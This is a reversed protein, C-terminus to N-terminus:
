QTVVMTITQTESIGSSQGTGVIKFTYSGPATGNTSLGSCGSAGLTLAIAFAGLMCRLISGEKRRLLLGALFGLPLCCLLTGHPYALSASTGPGAGLPNGTDVVVSATAVGNASLKVQSPTFTCTGSSPLGLCGLAIIDTFGQVSALNITITTHQHTAVSISPPSAVLSFPTTASAAIATAASQSAAYNVDGAYSATVLLTSQTTAATLTAVGNSAITAQGLTVGGSTFSVTGGPSISGQGEVVAVLNFQQLGIASGAVTTTTPRLQITESYGASASAFNAGDGGYSAGISHSGVSMAPVSLTAHGTADLNAVGIATGADTFQITGTAPAAGANTITATFSLPNLTTGPNSNSNLSLATTQKVALVLPASVSPSAKGDGAYSAVFTHVGPSLTSLTLVAIGSANLPATASTTGDTFSVMGTAVGGNSTIRATFTVPQGFTALQASETISLQTNADTVAEMLQATADAYSQDGSYSTTITHSGVSLASTTLSGTGSSDLTAAALLTGNDRFTVTGTPVVKGAGNIQAAFTVNQGSAAPNHNSTLTASTSTVVLETTPTSSSGAHDTDGGYVATLTHTGLGLGAPSFGAAGNPGPASSGLLTPGDYFRVTGGPNPSDSTITATLTLANGLTLPNASAVLLTSSNAQRVVVTVSASTASSNNADGGYSATLTHTGISLGATSFTASGAAAITGITTSNDLLMLMGAPSVGPSTLSATFSTMTGVDVLNAAVSLTLTPQALQVVFQEAASTSATYNNNGLYAVTMSHTGQSLSSTSFSASGTVSLTVVGLITSGDRISAQGPPVGNASTVSVNFTAPKGALGTSSASSVTTQTASQQVTQSIAGSTSPADNSDGSYTATVSHNGAALTSVTLSGTGSVVPASGLLNAGDKFLVSGTIPSGNTNTVMSTFNIPAGAPTNNGSSFLSTVTNEQSIQETVTNSTSGTNANDGGYQASLNHTGSSFDQMSWQAVGSSNFAVTALATVGDYLVVSGTATGSAVLATVTLTVNAAFVAPNPLVTLVLSSLQKVNEIYVPSTSAASNADGSYSVTIPHSGPTLTTISFSASGLSNLPSAVLLSGNDRFSATGTPVVGGAATIQAVFTVNQGNAAPNNNSTVVASTGQVVSETVPSSTSGAHNTDGSYVATLTHPGLGLGTPSFSASGNTGLSATGLVTTGNLFHVAGGANLTASTVAAALTLPNGQTLPNASATLLTTSTAQQVVVTVIASLVSSNNADGSYSATLTHTGISLTTSFPLSGTGSVAMTAIAAGGDLLLLTGTPAAGPSALVASFNATNGADVPNSPGSLTLTPQAPQVVYQDAASISGTYNSSGPYSATISHTGIGLTSTSFVASGTGSLPATGLVTSSDLFTAIGAPIGTTSTVLATFTAPKGALSSSAASLTTQTSTQQVTQTVVPSNSAAYNTNGGYGATLSHSGVSLTSYALVAQGSVNIAVTGLVTTGDYFLVNGTPVGDLTAGAALTVNATLHLTAGANIPNVDTNLITVTGIQAITETTSTSSSAANDTDGSYSATISHSGPALSSTTLSSAGSSLAASSLVSTGDKFTVSGTIPPGSGNTVTATLTIPLGVTSNAATTALATATTAKTIQESIINSAGSINANDGAYQASLSHAGVSFTQTSWQAIGAGNLAVTALATAGDYFLINGTATGTQDVATLTLTVSGTVVAPNASVGLVLAPQQKIVETYAPSTSAANNTDGSYAATFSHSGLALGPIVCPATGGGTLTVASCWPNGGEWFTVTGSTDNSSVTATLTIQQGVIGPNANSSLSVSTVNVSLVQGSLGDVPSVNPANSPWTISGAIPNGVVTPAFEVGMTCFAAPTMASQNCTTTGADLAAQNLVPASLVLNANGQNYLAGAQPPSVNGAKITSYTFGLFSGSIERVRNHFTDSIWLNGGADLFLAYPGYIGAQNAPGGDGTFQENGTGAVTQITGAFIARVQNNGTDAIFLDGGVDFAVDAPLNLQQAAGAATSIIGAPSVLRVRQNELDAIAIAGDSRVAVGYPDNLEAATAAIGDANYGATGNGAVTQIQHTLVNVLRVANNASDAIVLDGGPMLALGRPSTLLASTAAGGDGSYGNSGMEGAFTTIIGSVADVRRVVNNGSDAIYLNGAGDIALGSPNNLEAATAQSGDGAAGPSGNGAVTTILGSVADVRRVRNNSTDCLFLNGAADVTLGSPLFIPAQTAPIGDQLYIWAGDGAVTNITGPVLVPLSGEGVGSILTSALLTSGAKAVVAGQRVGPYRPSFVVGATCSQGATLSLGVTCTLPSVAFDLNPWGGTLAILSTLVGSNQATLTVTVAQSAMGVTTMGSFTLPTTSIQAGVVPALLSLLVLPWRKWREFM